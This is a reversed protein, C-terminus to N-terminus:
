RITRAVAPGHGSCGRRNVRGDKLGQEVCLTGEGASGIDRQQVPM